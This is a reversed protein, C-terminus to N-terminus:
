HINNLLSVLALIAGKFTQHYILKYEEDKAAGDAVEEASLPKSEIGLAVSSLTPKSKKRQELGYMRMAAMVVRSLAEKNRSETTPEEPQLSVTAVQSLGSRRAHGEPVGKRSLPRIDSSISPSRSLRRSPPRTLMGNASLPRIDPIPTLKSDISMSKRHQYAAQSEHGKGAAAAVSEGGKRQAKKQLQTAEDFIDRKRKPSDALVAAPSIALPLFRPEVRFESTSLAPSLPSFALLPTQYLLDSSLPLAHVRLEPLGGSRDQAVEPSSSPPTPLGAKSPAAITGYFLLETIRPSNGVAIGGEVQVIIGIPSQSRACTWWDQTSVDESANAISAVKGL